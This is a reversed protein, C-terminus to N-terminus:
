AAGPARVRLGEGLAPSRCECSVVRLERSRAEVRPSMADGSPGPAPCFFTTDVGRQSVYAKSPDLGFKLARGRLDESVCQVLDARELVERIPEHYSESSLPNIRLDSGTCSVVIPMDLLPLVDICMKPADIWDFHVIDARHALIPVSVSLTGLLGSRADRRRRAARVLRWLQIPHRIAAAALASFLLTARHWRSGGRPALVRLNGFGLDRGDSRVDNEADGVAFVCVDNGRAALELAQDALSDSSRAQHNLTVLLIRM